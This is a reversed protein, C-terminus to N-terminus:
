QRRMALLAAALLAILAVIAGFGPLTESDTETPTDEPTDTTIDDTTDTETPTPTPETPTPTPEEEEPATVAFLSFGPTEGELLVMEGSSSAVSTNLAGWEGSTDNYRTIVLDEASANFESLQSANVQMQVTASRNRESEPVTIRTAQIVNGQPQTVNYPVRTLDEISVNGTANENSFTINRVSVNRFRVRLGPQDPSEDALQRTESVAVEAPEVDVFVLGLKYDNNIKLNYAGSETFTNTLRVTKSSGESIKVSQEDLTVGRTTLRADFTGSADGNNEITVDVGVTDGSQIVTQNITGSTIDFEASPSPAAGGGGGGGGGGSGPSTGGGGTDAENVSLTGANVGNVSIDFTGPNNFTETFTVTKTGGASVTVQKSAVTTGDVELDATITGQTGGVNEVTADVNVSEGEEISTDSLSASTVSVNDSEVVTITTDDTSFSGDDGTAAYVFRYDGTSFNEGIQLTVTETAAGDTISGSTGNFPPILEGAITYNNLVEDITGSAEITVNQREGDKSILTANLKGDTVTLNDGIQGNADVTLGSNVFEDEHYLAFTHDVPEPRGSALEYEVTDGQEVENQGPSATADDDTQVSIVETGVITLENELANITLNGNVEQFGDGVNQSTLLTVYTGDDSPTFTTEAVGSGDIQASRVDVIEIADAGFTADGSDSNVDVNFADSANSSENLRAIIFQGDTNAFQSTDANTRSKFRLDVAQGQQYVNISDRNSPSDGSDTRFNVGLSGISRVATGDTAQLPSLLTREWICVGVFDTTPGSVSVNDVGYELTRPGFSRSETEGAVDFEFSQEDFQQSVSQGEFGFSQEGGSIPDILENEDCNSKGGIAPAFNVNSVGANSPNESVSDGSGDAVKNAIPDELPEPAASSPGDSAGWYNLPAEFNQTGSNNIGLQNDEVVNFTFNLEDATLDTTRNDEPDVVVGVSNNRVLTETVEVNNYTVNGHAFLGAGNDQLLTQEVTVTDVSSGDSFELGTASNNQLITGNIDVNSVDGDTSVGANSQEVASETIEVGDISGQDTRLTVGNDNATSVFQSIGVNQIQGSLSYAFFGGTNNETLVSSVDVGNVVGGSDTIVNIGNGSSNLVATESVTVNRVTSDQGFGAIAIGQGPNSELLSENIVVDSIDGGSEAIVALSKEQTDEVYNQQITVGSTTGQSVVVIGNEGGEVFNETIEITGATSGGTTFVGISENSTNSGRFLNRSVNANQANTLQVATGNYQRFAVNTITTDSVGAVNVGTVNGTYGSPATQPDPGEIGFGSITVSDNVVEFAPGDQGDGIMVPLGNGTDNGQITVSTNVTVREDYAGSEVTITDNDSANNVAAQITDYNGTETQNVVLETGSQAVVPAAGVSALVVLATIILLAGGARTQLKNM